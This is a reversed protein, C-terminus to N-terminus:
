CVDVSSEVWFCCSMNKELAWLVNELISWMSPWLFLRLLNWFISIRGVLKESWLPVFSSIYLSLFLSVFVHLNLM